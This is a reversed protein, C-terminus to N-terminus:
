VCARACVCVRACVCACARACVCVHIDTPALFPYVQLLQMFSHLTPHGASINVILQHRCLVSAIIVDVGLEELGNVFESRRVTATLENSDLSHIAVAHCHSYKTPRYFCVFLCVCQIFLGQAALM